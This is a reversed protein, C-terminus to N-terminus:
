ETEPKVQMKAKKSNRIFLKVLNWTTTMPFDKTSIAMLYGHQLHFYMRLYLMPYHWFFTWGKFVFTGEVCYKENVDKFIISYYILCLISFWKRSKKNNWFFFNWHCFWNPFLNYISFLYKKTNNRYIKFKFSSYFRKQSDLHWVLISFRESLIKLLSKLVKHEGYKWNVHM